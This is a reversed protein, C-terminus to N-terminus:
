FELFRKRVSQNRRGVWYNGGYKGSDAVSYLNATNRFGIENISEIISSVKDELSTNQDKEFIIESLEYM